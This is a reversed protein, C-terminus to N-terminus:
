QGRIRQAWGVNAYPGNPDLILAGQYPVSVHSFAPGNFLSDAQNMETILPGRGVGWLTWKGGFSGTGIAADATYREDAPRTGRHSYVVVNGLSHSTAVARMEEEEYASQNPKELHANMYPAFEMILASNSVTNDDGMAIHTGMIKRADQWHEIVDEKAWDEVSVFRPHRELLSLKYATFEANTVLGSDNGAASPGIYYM